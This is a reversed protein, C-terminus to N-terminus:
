GLKWWFMEWLPTGPGATDSDGWVKHSICRGLGASESLGPGSSSGLETSSLDSVRQEVNRGEKKKSGLAKHMGPLHEVV